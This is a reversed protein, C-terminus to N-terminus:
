AELPYEEILEYKPGEQEGAERLERISQNSTNRYLGLHTIELPPIAAIDSSHARGFDFMLDVEDKPVRAVTVHPDIKTLGFKAGNARFFPIICSHLFKIQNNAAQDVAVHLNHSETRFHPRGKKPDEHNTYYGFGPFTLVIRDTNEILRFKQIGKSTLERRRALECTDGIDLDNQYLVSIHLNEPHKIDWSRPMLASKAAFIDRVPPPIMIALFAGSQM